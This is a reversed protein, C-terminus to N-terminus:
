RWVFEVLLLIYKKTKKKKPKEKGERQNEQMNNTSGKYM